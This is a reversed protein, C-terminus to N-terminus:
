TIKLLLFYIRKKTHKTIRKALAEAPDNTDEHTLPGPANEKAQQSKDGFQSKKLIRSKHGDTAM